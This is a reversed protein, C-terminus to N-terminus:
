KKECRLMEKAKIKNIREILDDLEKLQEECKKQLEEKKEQLVKLQKDIEEIPIKCEKALEEEKELAWLTIKKIFEKLM